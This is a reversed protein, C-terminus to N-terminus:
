ASERRYYSLIAVAGMPLGTSTLGALGGSGGGGATAEFFDVKSGGSSISRIAGGGAAGGTSGVQSIPGYVQDFILWLALLLDDPLAKFGGSYNVTIQHGGAWGDLIVLGTDVDMHYKISPSANDGTVATITELPYRRLSLSMGHPHNFTVSESAYMFRRDCYAEALALAGNLAATVFADKTTDGAAIGLRAKGASLDWTM